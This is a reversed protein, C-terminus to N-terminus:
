SASSRGILCATVSRERVGGRHSFGYCVVYEHRYLMSSFEFEGNTGTTESGAVSAPQFGLARCRTRSQKLPVTRQECGATAPRARTPGKTEKYQQLFGSVVADIASSLWRCPFQAIPKIVLCPPM